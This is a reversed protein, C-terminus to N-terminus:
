APHEAAPIDTPPVDPTFFVSFHIEPSIRMPTQTLNRGANGDNRKRRQCLEMKLRDLVTIKTAM